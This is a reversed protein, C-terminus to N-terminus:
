AKGKQANPCIAQTNRRSFRSDSEFFRRAADHMPVHRDGPSLTSWQMDRLFGYVPNSPDKSSCLRELDGIVSRLVNTVIEDGLSKSAVLVTRAGITVVKGVGQEELEVTDYGYRQYLHRDRPIVPIFRWDLQKAELQGTLKEVAPAKLGTFYFLVQTEQQILKNMGRTFEYGYVHPHKESLPMRRCNAEINGTCDAICYSKCKGSQYYDALVFLTASRTGSGPQAIDIRRDLLNCLEDNEENPEPKNNEGTAIVHLAEKHFAMVTRLDEQPWDRWEGLDGLSQLSGDECGDPSAIMNMGRSARVVQDFQALGLDVDGAMVARINSVSGASENVHISLRTTRDKAIATRIAEGIQFYVGERGGTAVRIDLDDHFSSEGDTNGGCVLQMGWCTKTIWNTFYLQYASYLGTGVIVGWVFWTFSRITSKKM